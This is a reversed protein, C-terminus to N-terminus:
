GKLKHRKVIDFQIKYNYNLSSFYFRIKKLNIKARKKKNLYSRKNYTKDM